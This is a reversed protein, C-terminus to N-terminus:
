TIASGHLLFVLAIIQGPTMHLDFVLSARDENIIKILKGSSVDWMRIAKDYGASIVVGASKNMAVSRVLDTHGKFTHMLDGTTASYIKVLNDGDGTLIYDDIWEVCAIGRGGRGEKDISGSPIDWIKWTGDGSGSLVKRSDPSSSLSNVPQTHGELKRVLDYTDEGDRPYVRISKDKNSSIIYESSIRVSLVSSDQQISRIRKMQEGNQANLSISWIGISTDSSGTVLIGMGDEDLDLAISLVSRQHAEKTVWICKQTRLDYIRISTDRSGTFIFHRYRATCYVADTHGSLVTPIPLHNPDHILKQLTMRSRVLTPYHIPIGDEPNEEADAKLKSPPNEDTIAADDVKTWHNGTWQGSPPYEVAVGHTCAYDNLEFGAEHFIQLWLAPTRSLDYFRTSITSILHLQNITAPLHLLIQLLIEDPLSMLGDGSELDEDVYDRQVSKGMAPSGITLEKMREAFSWIGSTVGPVLDEDNEINTISGGRLSSSTKAPTGLPARLPSENGNSLGFSAFLGGFRRRNNAETRPTSTSSQGIKTLLHNANQKSQPRSSASGSSSSSSVQFPNIPDDM